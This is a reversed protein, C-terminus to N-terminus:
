RYDLPRVHSLNPKRTAGPSSSPGLRELREERPQQVIFV